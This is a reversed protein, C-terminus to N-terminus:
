RAASPVSLSTDRCRRIGNESECVFSPATGATTKGRQAKAIGPIDEPLLGQERELRLAIMSKLAPDTAPDAYLKYVVALGALNYLGNADRAAIRAIAKSDECAQGANYVRGSQLSLNLGGFTASATTGGTASGTTATSAQLGLIRTTTESVRCTTMDLETKPLTTCGSIGVAAGLLAPAAARSFSHTMNKLHRFM